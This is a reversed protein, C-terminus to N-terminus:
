LVIRGKENASNSPGLNVSVTYGISAISKLGNKQNKAGKRGARRRIATLKTLPVREHAELKRSM